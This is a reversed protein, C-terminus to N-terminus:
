STLRDLRVKVALTQLLPGLNTPRGLRRSTLALPTMHHLGLLAGERRAVMREISLRELLAGSWEARSRKVAGCKDCEDREAVYTSHLWSNVAIVYLQRYSTNNSPLPDYTMLLFLRNSPMHPHYSVLSNFPEIM